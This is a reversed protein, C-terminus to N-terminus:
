ENVATQLGLIVKVEFAIKNTEITLGLFYRQVKVRNTRLAM